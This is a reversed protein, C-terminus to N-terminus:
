SGTSTIPISFASGFDMHPFRSHSQIHIHDSLTVKNKHGYTETSLLPDENKRHSNSNKTNISTNITM